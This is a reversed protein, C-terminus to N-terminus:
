DFALDDIFTWNANNMKLRVYKASQGSLKLAVDGREGAPIAAMSGNSVKFVVPPSWVKDDNSFSVQVEAPQYVGGSIFNNFGIKVVSFLREKPFQWTIELDNGQWGVWEFAHGKGLNASWDAVGKAGDLLQGLEYKDFGANNGGQGPGNLAINHAEDYYCYSGCDGPFNFRYVAKGCVV